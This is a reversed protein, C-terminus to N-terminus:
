AHLTRWAWAATPQHDDRAGRQIGRATSDTSCDSPVTMSAIVIVPVMKIGSTSVRVAPSTRSTSSLRLSARNGDNTLLSARTSCILEASPTDGYQKEIEVVELQDVVAKAM